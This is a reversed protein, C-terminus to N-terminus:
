EGTEEETVEMDPDPTRHEYCKRDLLRGTNDFLIAAHEPLASIAALSLISHFRSEAEDRSDFSAVPPVGIEGSDFTQIELVLYKM